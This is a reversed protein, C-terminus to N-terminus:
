AASDGALLQPLSTFHPDLAKEQDTPGHPLTVAQDLLSRAKDFDRLWIYARAVVALADGLLEVAELKALETRAAEARGAAALVMAQNALVEPISPDALAGLNDVATQFSQEAIERKGAFLAVLGLFYHAVFPFFDDELSRSFSRKADDLNGTALHLYGADLWCNPDGEYKGALAYSKLALEAVGLKQYVTGLYYHARGSDPVLELTREITAMASPFKREAIYSVALALMSEVDTPALELARQAHGIAADMDGQFHKLWALSRYGAAYTPDIAIAQQFQEEAGTLDGDFMACRGKSRYAAALRPNLQLALDAKNRAAAIRDPTRDYHSMYLTAYLDALGSLALAYDPEVSLAKEFLREAKELDEPRNTQYYSLGQLYYDYATIDPKRDESAPKLQVGIEEALVNSAESAVANLLGFIDDERADRRITLLLREGKDAYVFMRVALRDSLRSLSGHLVYDTRYRSFAERIDRPHDAASQASVAMGTLQSIEAILDDTVGECYYDWNSDGSLNRLDVVTATPLRRKVEPTAVAPEATVSRPMLAEILETMSGFRSEPAKSLGRLIPDDLWEPLERNVHTPPVPQEHLISYMVSAPYDGAFPRMGTLLEYAIVSFAFQDSLPSAGTGDLQEPALYFLTGEIRGQMGLSDPQAFKALGFDLIRPSGSPNVLINEPKLDGHVADAAHAAAIGAAAERLLRLQDDLAHEYGFDVIPQGDIFEMAIVSQGNHELLDWIRIVYPSDIRAAHRAEDALMTRFEANTARDKKLLKLAVIRDLRPDHARYVEGMAGEGVLEEVRYPGVETGSQWTARLKDASM